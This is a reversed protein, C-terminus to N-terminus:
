KECLILHFFRTNSRFNEKNFNGEIAAIHETDEFEDENDDDITSNLIVQTNKQGSSM